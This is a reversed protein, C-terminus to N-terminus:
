ERCHDRGPDRRFRRFRHSQDPVALRTEPDDGDVPRRPFELLPKVIQNSEGAFAGSGLRFGYGFAFEVRSGAAGRDAEMDAQGIINFLPIGVQGPGVAEQNM